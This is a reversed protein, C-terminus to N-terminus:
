RGQDLRLEQGCTPRSTVDDEEDDRAGTLRESGSLGRQVLRNEPYLNYRTLLRTFLDLLELTFREFTPDKGATSIVGRVCLVKCSTSQSLGVLSVKFTVVIELPVSPPGRKLTQARSVRWEPGGDVVASIKRRM